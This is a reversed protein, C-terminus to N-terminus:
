SNLPCAAQVAAVACADAMSLDDSCGVGLVVDKLEPVNEYLTKLFQTFEDPLMTGAADCVTVTSAGAAIAAKVAKYLFDPDSRTADDAIFEVDETLNRCARVTDEIATLMAPAKLHHIYEMQTPSIAAPVQLRPSKALRLANWTVSVSEQGLKVPVALISNKVSSAISKIRLSDIKTQEIGEAEIVAVGLRDLLKAMELKEKFTLSIERTHGSQKMTGDSIRVERM